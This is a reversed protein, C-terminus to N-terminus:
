SLLRRLSNLARAQLAYVASLPRNMVRASEAASLGTIYRLLIAERQAETLGRLGNALDMRSVIADAEDPIASGPLEYSGDSKSDCRGFLSKVLRRARGGQAARTEERVVNRAIGYLWAVMPKGQYTYHDIASLARQFTAAAADEAGAGDGLRALAYRYIRDFHREYLVEWAAASRQQLLVVVDADAESDSARSAASDSIFTSRLDSDRQTM